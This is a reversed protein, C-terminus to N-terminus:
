TNAALWLDGAALRDVMEGYSGVLAGGNGKWAQGWRRIEDLQARSYLAADGGHGLLIGIFTMLGLSDHMGVKGHYRPDHLAEWAAPPEILDANYSIVDFGFYAPLAYQRGGRRAWDAERLRAHAGAFDPLRGVEV